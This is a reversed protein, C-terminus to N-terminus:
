RSYLIDDYYYRKGKTQSNACRTAYRSTLTSICVFAALSFFDEAGLNHVFKLKTYVRLGLVLSSVILLSIFIITMDEQYKENEIETRAM